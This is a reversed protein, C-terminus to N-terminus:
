DCYVGGDNLKRILENIAEINSKILEIRKDWITKEDENNLEFGEILSLREELDKKRRMLALEIESVQNVDFEFRRM